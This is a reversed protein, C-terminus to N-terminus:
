KGRAELAEIIRILAATDVDGGVRLARGGAIVIEIAGSKSSTSAAPSQPPQGHRCPESHQICTALSFSARISVTADRWRQYQRVQRM